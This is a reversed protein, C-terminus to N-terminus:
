LVSCNRFNFTIVSLRELLPKIRYRELQYREVIYLRCAWSQNNTKEFFM